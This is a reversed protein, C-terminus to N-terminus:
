RNKPVLVYLTNASEALVSWREPLAAYLPSASILYQANKSRPYAVISTIHLEALRREAEEPPASFIFRVEPSWVPVVEIGEQYLAAHLYANDSLIRSGRPFMQVMRSGLKFEMQELGPFAAQQWQGPRLALPDLPFFLGQAASWFLCAGLACLALNRWRVKELLPDLLGAASISLVVLAPSLVRLSITMGGSTYGVSLLWVVVNVFATVALYGHKRFQLITGPMGALVQPIALLSAVSFAKGWDGLTWTQVGFISKYSQLIADHIPNVAFGLLRMSYLPNGTLIWNRVYWPGGAAGAVITFIAIQKWDFRRWLLVVIGCLLAMWGYERSLACVAAALGALVPQREALLFYLMAAIALATLGTEQGIFVARFYLQSAALATAALVGARRSFIASAAGYVFALTCAFEAIVRLAILWPQYDGASAYLWFHTFSVLPPIGDVFFYKRFDAAQLPPYFQFSASQAILQGLFDWRFRTDQGVLPARLSHVLLIAGVVGCATLLIREAGTWPTTKTSAQPPAFKRQAWALAGTALILFPAINWLRVPVGLVGLWFIFHFLVPLSLVFASPAWLSVRFWRALFYGPLFLGLPLLIPLLFIL